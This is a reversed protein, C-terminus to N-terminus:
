DYLYIVMIKTYDFICFFDYHCLHMNSIVTELASNEINIWKDVNRAV